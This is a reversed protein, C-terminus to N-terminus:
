YWVGTRHWRPRSTVVPVRVLSRRPPMPWVPPAERPTERPMERALHALRRLREETPPHTRLYSPVPVRPGPFAIGALFRRGLRELKALASGLGAPDGTLRVAGLDADFERSRSLALQMLSVLTPSLILVGITLWSVTAEGFMALPLNLILLLMGFTSSFSTLRAMMDAVGMLWLDRNAIHSVEHALVARLERPSMVRMLGDTVAVASDDASGVAFANPMASPVYYLAPPRPLGSRRGLDALTASLEPMAHPPVPRARYLRLVMDKPALAPVLLLMVAAGAVVGLAAWPGFSTVVACFAIAGMGGILLVSHLLNLLRHQRSPSLTVTM